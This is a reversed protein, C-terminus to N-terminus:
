KRGLSIRALLVAAMDWAFIGLFALSVNIEQTFALGPIDGNRMIITATSTIPHLYMNIGMILFGFLVYVLTMSVPLIYGKGSTALALIPLMAFATLVGIELCKELLYLVSGWEFAAYGSLVSFMVTFVATVLMFCVSYTLVVFFKGFFYGAKSVPVIWLQKLMGYQNEDHMLLTCLIGLVFPLIIFMTYGFAAMKYFQIPEVGKKGFYNFYVLSLSPM